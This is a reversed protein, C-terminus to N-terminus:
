REGAEGEPESTVPVSVTLSGVRCSDHEPQFPEPFARGSAAREFSRELEVRGKSKQWRPMGVRDTRSRLKRVDGLLGGPQTALSDRM